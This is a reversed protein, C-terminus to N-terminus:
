PSMSTSTATGGRTFWGWAATASAPFSPAAGSVPSNCTPITARRALAMEARSMGAQMLTSVECGDGRVAVDQGLEDTLLKVRAADKDIVLVEHGGEILERSLYYGVKGGGVIVIFM